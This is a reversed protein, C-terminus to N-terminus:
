QDYSHYFPKFVENAATSGGFRRTLAAPWSKDLPLLTFRGAIKPTKAADVITEPSTGKNGLSSIVANHSLLTHDGERQVAVDAPETLLAVGTGDPATLLALETERRNGQFRLDDRTLHFLGFENLRDKGPYGPYPGQGVWRFESMGPPLVISLGAETLTGNANTPAYEYSVTMAGNPQVELTYGGVFAQDTAQPRPYRGSVALRVTDGERTIKVEPAAVEKLTSMRWTSARNAALSEAMTLTRGPHPSIGEVLVRGARDCIVLAGTARTATAVWQAHTLKVEVESEEVTPAGPAPLASVWTARRANALDLRLSRENIPQGGEDLCRLDLALVDEAADAPITVPIQVAERGHATAHLRASGQALEAGNRRLSWALKMGTLPRFDYRNEVTLSLNQEGPKVALTHEPFQVPAYVKRVQWFDSQPTRDAYVIGDTGDLRHTDYYRHEDLWAYETSKTRDVPTDSRRLVGQDMFHWIAGGAFQPTAQFMEWQDQIRDTALGLAHAYETFITPRQLNQAYTRLMSNTPYHPAYVDVFEPIRQYNQAFYSGIKPYCIPRTPDLDKARRGAEMEVDTVPNENGISWVIVSPRNKDRTITPEVRALVADRYKPDELHEEGKGIAVECMVYFGLEDCLEIFRPHSPYHSTRVFNINARKMVELDRRMQAETVARGSDPNLDHRNVGRLKIPQGNLKLVGGDISVERLGIREEVSQLTQGNASLTLQLRYLAPTEATWRQPQEVRVTAECRGGAQRPLEFERVTEGAPGLLKGRLDGPQSTTVTVSLDAAGDPTLKTRTSVDQLHTAPVSFLTVDRIIGGLSWDDNVDFEFGLPKTTVQVALVNDAAPDALLADTIDFTHPNYASASSGGIKKGNVWADFGFAVGEFRLCLRRDGRWAAPIRFTRRYLGLGDKLELAYRPEAFGHLEWNAPVPLTKWASVDFTPAHFGADPGPDLAPLYKFSWDGNLSQSFAAERAPYVAIPGAAHAPRMSSSSAAFTAMLLITLAHLSRRKM